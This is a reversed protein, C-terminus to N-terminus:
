QGLIRKLRLIKPRKCERKMGSSLSFTEGGKYPCEFRTNTCLSLEIGVQFMCKEKEPLRRIYKEFEWQNAPQPDKM